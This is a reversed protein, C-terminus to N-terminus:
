DKKEFYWQTFFHKVREGFVVQKLVLENDDLSQIKFQRADGKDNNILIRKGDSILKWKGSIVQGNGQIIKLLGNEDFIFQRGRYNNELIQRFDQKLNNLTNKEDNENHAVSKDYDMQWTGFLKQENVTASAESQANAVQSLGVILVLLLGYFLGKKVLEIETVIKYDRENM